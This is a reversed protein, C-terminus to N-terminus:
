LVVKVWPHGTLCLYIQDLHAKSATNSAWTTEVASIAIESNHDMTIIKSGKPGIVMEVPVLVLELFRELDLDSSSKAFSAFARLLNANEISHYRNCIFTDQILGVGGNHSVTM